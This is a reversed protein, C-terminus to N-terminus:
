STEEFTRTEHYPESYWFENDFRVPHGERICRREVDACDRIKTDLAERRHINDELTNVFNMSTWGMPMSLYHDDLIQQETPWMAM